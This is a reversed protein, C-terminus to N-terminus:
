GGPTEKLKKQRDGDMDCREQRGIRQCDDARGCGDAPRRRDATQRMWAIWHAQDPREQVRWIRALEAKVAHRESRKERLVQARNRIGM